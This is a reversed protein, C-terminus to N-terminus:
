VTMRAFAASNKLAATADTTAVLSLTHSACRIHTPLVIVCNLLDANSSMNIINGVDVVDVNERDNDVTDAINDTSGPGNDRDELEDNDDDDIDNVLAIKIGFEKFAKVFNSGNDTVTAIIKNGSIGFENNIDYLLEAVRDYTHAGEFRRCAFAVSKRCFTQADYLYFM